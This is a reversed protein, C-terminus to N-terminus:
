DNEAHDLVAANGTSRVPQPLDKYARRLQRMQTGAKRDRRNATANFHVLVTINHACGTHVRKRHKGENSVGNMEHHQM